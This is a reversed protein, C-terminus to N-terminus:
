VCYRLRSGYREINVISELNEFLTQTLSTATLSHAIVPPHKILEESTIEAVSATPTDPWLEPREKLFKPGSWWTENEVLDRGSCGRSPIDAPNITGPCFRWKETDTLNRIVDVRHQVCQKWPKHNKIWCLVTLSDVWCYTDVAFPLSKFASHIIDVLRSLIYAGLLELRPISQEKLPSVKTESAVLRAEIDGDEYTTRMYVAAAIANESADSFGHLVPREENMFYCRPVDIKTMAGFENPLLNWKKLMEGELHDDWKAKVSCLKQFWMKLNVTFPSILGLPHFLNASGKLVSRKTPPLSKLYEVVEAFDFRSADIVTDWNLGM